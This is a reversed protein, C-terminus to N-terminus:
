RTVTPDWSEPTKSEQIGSALLLISQCVTRLTQVIAMRESPLHDAAELGRAIRLITAADRDLDRNPSPDAPM